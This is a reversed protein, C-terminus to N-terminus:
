NQPPTNRQCYNSVDANVPMEKMEQLTVWKTETIEHTDNPVLPVEEALDFVYYHGYGIRIYGIADPLSHIGTEEAVERNTCERPTENFHSHGKPFSWKGTYRGRVLAYKQQGDAATTKLIGGYVKTKPLKRQKRFSLSQFASPTLYCM